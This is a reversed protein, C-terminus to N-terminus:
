QTLKVFDQTVFDDPDGIFNWLILKGDEEFLHLSFMATYNGPYEFDLKLVPSTNDSLNKEKELKWSCSNMSKTALDAYFDGLWNAQLEVKCSGDGNLTFTKWPSVIGWDPQQNVWSNVDSESEPTVKWTGVLEEIKVDREIHREPLEFIVSMIGCGLVIFLSAVASFFKM